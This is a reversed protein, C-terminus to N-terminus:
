GLIRVKLETMKKDDSKAKLVLVKLGIDDFTDDSVKEIFEDFNLFLPTIKEAGDLNQEAVKVCGKAIFTYIAWDIKGNPQVSYFLEWEKAECGTEELLERKAAFLPDEGQEIRGGFTCIFSSKGPQEEKALMIKCDETVAIISATDPRRVKEFIKVEGDYGIQDWQYVDFLKGEFVKKAHNPIPQKSIPREIKM